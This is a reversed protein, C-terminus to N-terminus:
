AARDAPKFGGHDLILALARYVRVLEHSVTIRERGNVALVEWRAPWRRCRLWAAHQWRLTRRSGNPAVETIAFPSVEIMMQLLNVYRRIALVGLSGTGGLVILAWSLTSHEARMQLALAGGLAAAGLVALLWYTSTCLRLFSPAVQFREVSGEPEPAPDAQLRQRLEGRAALETIFGLVRARDEDDMRRLNRTAQHMQWDMWLRLAAWIIALM